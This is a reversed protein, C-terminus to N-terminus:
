MTLLTKFRSEAGADGAAFAAILGEKAKPSLKSAKVRTPFSPTNDASTDAPQATAVVVKGNVPQAPVVTAAAPIVEPMVVVPAVAVPAIAPVEASPTPEPESPPEADLAALETELQAIENKAVTAAAFEESEVATAKRAKAAELKSQLEVRPDPEVEGSGEGDALAKAIAVQTKNARERRDQSRQASTEIWHELTKVDPNSTLETQEMTALLDGSPVNTKKSNKEYFADVLGSAVFPAFTDVRFEILRSLDRMAEAYHGVLKAYSGDYIAEFLRGDFGANHIVAMGFHNKIATWYNSGELAKKWANKIQTKEEPTAKSAVEFVKGTQLILQANMKIFASEHNTPKTPASPGTTKAM